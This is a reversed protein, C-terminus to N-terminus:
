TDADVDLEDSSRKKRGKKPLPALPREIEESGLWLIVWRKIKVDPTSDYRAHAQPSDFMLKAEDYVEKSTSIHLHKAM